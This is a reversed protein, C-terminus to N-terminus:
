KDGEIASDRSGRLRDSGITDEICGSCLHRNTRVERWGKTRAAEEISRPEGGLTRLDLDRSEDCGDCVQKVVIM